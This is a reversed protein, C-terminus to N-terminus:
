AMNPRVVLNVPIKVPKARTKIRLLTQKTAIYLFGDEGLTLSTPTDPIAFSALVTQNAVDVVLVNTGIAWFIYGSQSVAIHGPEQNAWVVHQTLDLAIEPETRVGAILPQDKAERKEHNDMLDDTDHDDDQPTLQFKLLTVRDNHHAPVYAFTWDPAIAVNGLRGATAYKIRPPALGDSAAVASWSHAERSQPLSELPKVHVAHNLQILVSTQCAAVYDTVLLDGFPTFVLSTPHEIRRHALSRITTQHHNTNNDLKNDDLECVDPVQIILPTRAGTHPELRVVRGEGWEAVVLSGEAAHEKSRFDIAMGGSGVPEGVAVAATSNSCPRYQGSRCGAHDLHLTKGIAIPGGGVEWRWIRGNNAADSLLLYGRGLESDHRWITAVVQQLGSDQVTQLGYQLAVTDTHPACSTSEKSVFLVDRALVRCAHTADSAHLRLIKGTISEDPRFTSSTRVGSSRGGLQLIRTALFYSLAPLFVICWASALPLGIRGKPSLTRATM